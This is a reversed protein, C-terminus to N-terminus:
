IINALIRRNIENKAIEKSKVFYHYYNHLLRPWLESYLQHIEDVSMACLRDIESLILELRLHPDVVSDYSENIYPSFTQFGLDRLYQLTNPSGALIFPQLSVIAWLTKETIYLCSMDSFHTETVIEFYSRTNLTAAEIFDRPFFGLEKPCWGIQKITNLTSDPMIPSIEALKDWCAVLRKGSELQNILQYTLIDTEVTPADKNGFENGFYSIIGKDFYNRDLLHLMIATRHFRPRLMLCTFYYKRKINQDISNQILDINKQFLNNRAFYTRFPDSFGSLSYQHTLLKNNIRYNVNLKKRWDDYHQDAVLNANVFYVKDPDVNYHELMNHFTKFKQSLFSDIPNYPVAEISLDFFYYGNNKEVFDRSKALTFEYNDFLCIDCYIPYLWKKYSSKDEFHTFFNVTSEINNRKLSNYLFTNNNFENLYFGCEKTM